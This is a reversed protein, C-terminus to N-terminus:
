NYSDMRDQLTKAIVEDPVNKVMFRIKGNADEVFRTADEDPIRDPAENFFELRGPATLSYLEGEGEFAFQVATLDYSARKEESNYLRYSDIIPSNSLGHEEKTGWGTRVTHGIKFDSLYLPKPFNEFCFKSANFDCVVNFERGAPYLAAMSVLAHVKKEALELGTLPSYKDPGSKLFDALSNFMGITVLIVSDDEAEALLSRYFDVHPLYELTGNKYKTSYNEAIYKNYNISDAYFGPKAYMGLPFEPYGCFERIADITATGYKNSTCNNVGLIKVNNETAYSMMVALAGVDDCDPGIDTDLLISRNKMKLSEFM